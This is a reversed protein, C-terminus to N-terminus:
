GHINPGGRILQNCNNCIYQLQGSSDKLQFLQNSGCNPCTVMSEKILNNEVHSEM